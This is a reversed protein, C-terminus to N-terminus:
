LKKSYIPTKTIYTKVYLIRTKRNSGRTFMTNLKLMYPKLYPSFTLEVSGTGKKYIASSLWATQILTDGEHLELVKKMLEKTIKPIETYKTQTEGGLLQIFESIKFKLQHWGRPM